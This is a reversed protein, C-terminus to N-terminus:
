FTPLTQIHVRRRKGTMSQEEDDNSVTSCYSHDLHIHAIPSDNVQNSHQFSSLQSGDNGYVSSTLLNEGDFDSM